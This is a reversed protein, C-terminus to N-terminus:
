DAGQNKGDVQSGGEIRRDLGADRLTGQASLASSEDAVARYIYYRIPNTEDASGQDAAYLGIDGMLTTDKARELVIQNDKNDMTVTMDYSSVSAVRMKGYQADPAISVPDDSIQWIGDVTVAAQTGDKYANKFHVAIIVLSNQTGVDKKYIYSKDAMNANEASPAIISSDVLDGNKLLNLYCRGDESVGKVLLEYGGELMLSSGKEVVKESDEDILIIELQEDAISNEDKSEEYLLPYSEWDGENYAYGAFHKEGLFGVIYYEGWDEFAFSKAQASTTYILGSYEGLVNGETIEARLDETGLDQDADYYFGAFNHANWEFSGTAVQSRIRNDGTATREKFPYFRLTDNSAVRLRFGPMIPLDRDKSLTVVNKSNDLSIAMAVPDLSSVRMKDYVANAQVDLPRDSTQWIGDVTVIANESDNYANKFHIAITVFDEQSGVDKKYLYTKDAVTASDKSPFIAKTDVSKGNKRLEVNAMGQQPQISNVTLEYGEKLKIPMGAAVTMEADQDILIEEIQGKSLSDPNKSEKFLLQDGEPFDSDQAYGALCKKGLFGIMYYSGWIDFDFYEKQAMTMYVLGYPEDGALKRDETLTATLVETGLNKDADYYFGAFNQPTWTFDSTAVQGRITDGDTAGAVAALLLAAIASAFLIMKM